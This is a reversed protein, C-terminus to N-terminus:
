RGFSFCSCCTSEAPQHLKKQAAATARLAVFAEKKEQVSGGQFEAMKAQVERAQVPNNAVQQLRLRFFGEMYAKVQQPNEINVQDM